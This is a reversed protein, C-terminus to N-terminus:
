YFSLMTQIACGVQTNSGTLVAESQMTNKTFVKQSSVLCTDNWAPEIFTDALKWCLLAGYPSNHIKDVNVM